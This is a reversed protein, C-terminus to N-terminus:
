YFNILLYNFSVFIKLSTKGQSILQGGEFVLIWDASQLYHAHHTCLIRTKNRLYDVMLSEVLHRAVQSDVASLVDDM